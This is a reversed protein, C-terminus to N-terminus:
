DILQTCKELEDPDKVFRPTKWFKFDHDKCQKIKLNTDEKWDKFVSTEKKFERHHV